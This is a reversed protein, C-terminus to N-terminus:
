PHSGILNKRERRGQSLKNGLEGIAESSGLRTFMETMVHTSLEAIQFALTDLGDGQEVVDGRARELLKEIAIDPIMGTGAIADLLDDCAIMFIGFGDADNVVGPM